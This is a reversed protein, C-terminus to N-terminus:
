MFLYQHHSGTRKRKKRLYQVLERLSSGDLEHYNLALTRLFNCDGLSAFANNLTLSLSVIYFHLGHKMKM